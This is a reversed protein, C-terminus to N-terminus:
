LELWLFILSFRKSPTQPFVKRKEIFDPLNIQNRWVEKVEQVEKKKNGPSSQFNVAKQSQLTILTFIINYNMLKLMYNILTIM